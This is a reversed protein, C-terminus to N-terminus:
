FVDKVKQGLVVAKVGKENLSYVQDKKLAILPFVVLCVTKVVAREGRLFVGLM